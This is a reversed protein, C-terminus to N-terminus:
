KHLGSPMLEFEKPIVFIGPNIPEEVFDIWKISTWFDKDRRTLVKPTKHQEEIELEFADGNIKFSFIRSSNSREIATLELPASVFLFTDDIISKNLSTGPYPYGLYKKKQPYVLYIYKKSFDIITYGGYAEKLMPEIRLMNKSRYIKAMFQVGDSNEYKQITRFEDPMEFLIGNANLLKGSLLISLIFILKIKMVFFNIPLM